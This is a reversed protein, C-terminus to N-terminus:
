PLLLYDWSGAWGRVEPVELPTLTATICRQRGVLCAATSLKVPVERGARGLLVVTRGARCSTPAAAAAESSRMAAQMWRLHLAAHPQRMLDTIGQRKAM